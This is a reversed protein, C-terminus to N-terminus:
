IGSGEKIVPAKENALCAAQKFLFTIDIWENFLENPFRWNFFNLSQFHVMLVFFYVVQNLYWDLWLSLLQRSFWELLLILTARRLIVKLLSIIVMFPGIINCELPLVKMLMMDLGEETQKHEGIHIGDKGKWLYGQLLFSINQNYLLLVGRYISSKHFNLIM